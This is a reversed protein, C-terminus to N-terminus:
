RLPRSGGLTPTLRPVPGVRLGHSHRVQELVPAITAEQEAIRDPGLDSGELLPGAGLWYDFEVRSLHITAAPFALTNNGDLLLGAIHDAHGHSLLVDTITERGIGQAELTAVLAGPPGFAPAPGSGTDFLIRSSATELYLLNNGSPVFAPDRGRSSLIRRVLPLQSQM